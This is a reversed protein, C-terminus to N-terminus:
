SMYCNRQWWNIYYLSLQALPVLGHTCLIRQTGLNGLGNNRCGAKCQCTTAVLDKETFACEVCYVDKRMSAKVKHDLVVLCPDTKNFYGFVFQANRVSPTRVDLSHRVSRNLIRQGSHVRSEAGMQIVNQPLIHKVSLKDGKQQEKFQTLSALLCVLDMVAKAEVHLNAIITGIPGKKDCGKICPQIPLYDRHTCRQLLCCHTNYKMSQWQFSNTMMRSTPTICRSFQSM